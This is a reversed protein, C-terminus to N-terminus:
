QKNIKEQKKHRFHKEWYCSIIDELQIWDVTFCLVVIGISLRRSEEPLEFIRMRKMLYVMLAFRMLSINMIGWKM